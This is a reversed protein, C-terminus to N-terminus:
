TTLTSPAESRSPFYGGSKKWLGCNEGKRVVHQNRIEPNCDFEEFKGEEGHVVMCVQHKTAM